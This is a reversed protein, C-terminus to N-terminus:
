GIQMYTKKSLMQFAKLDTIGMFINAICQAGICYEIPIDTFFIAIICGVISGVLELSKEFAQWDTLEDSKIRRNIANNMITWWLTTSVANLLAFGIFRIEPYELGTFSIICYCIIDILVIFTFNKRYLEKMKGIPVSFNVLTACIMGLMNAIALVKSSILQMFYINIIPSTAAYIVSLVVPGVLTM